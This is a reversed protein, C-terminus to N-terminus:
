FRINLTKNGIYRDFKRVGRSISTVREDKCIIDSLYQFPVVEYLVAIEEEIGEEKLRIVYPADFHEETTVLITRDTLFNTVEYVQKIRQSSKGRAADIFFVTTDKTVECQPGHCFEEAEVANASCGYTETLKLAGEMADAYSPGCGVIMVREMQWMLIKNENYFRETAERAEDIKRVAKQLDGLVREYETTEIRKLGLAAELAALMLFLTSVAMGKTVFHDGPTNGYASVLKVEERIPANLDNTLAICDKRAAKLASAAKLTNTSCGSQSLLIVLTDEEVRDAFYNVFTYPWMAEM